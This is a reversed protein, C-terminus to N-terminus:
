SSRVIILPDTDSPAVGHERISATGRTLLRLVADITQRDFADTL